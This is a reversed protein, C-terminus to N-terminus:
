IGSGFFSIDVKNEPAFITGDKLPTRDLFFTALYENNHFANDTGYFHELGTINNNEDM